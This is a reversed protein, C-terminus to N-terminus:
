AKLSLKEKVKIITVGTFVSLYFLMPIFYRAISTTLFYVFYFGIFIYILLSMQEPYAKGTKKITIFSFVVIPFNIAFMFITKSTSDTFSLFYLPNFLKSLITMGPKEMIFEKNMSILGTNQNKAKYDDTWERINKYIYETNSNKEPLEGGGQNYGLNGTKLMAETFFVEFMLTNEGYSLGESPKTFDSIFKLTGLCIIFVIFLYLATVYKKHVIFFFSIFLPLIFMVPKFMLSIPILVILTVIYYWVFKNSLNVSVLIILGLITTIYIEPASRICAWWIYLPNFLSLLLGFIIVKNPFFPSFIRFALYINCFTLLEAILVRLYPHLILPFFNLLSLVLPIGPTRFHHSLGSVGYFFDKGIAYYGDDELFFSGPKHLIMKVIIVMLAIALFHLIILSKVPNKDVINKIKNM